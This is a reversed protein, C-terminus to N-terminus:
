VLINDYKALEEDFNDDNFVLIGNEMEAEASVSSSLFSTLYLLSAITKM